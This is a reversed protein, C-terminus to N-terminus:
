NLEIVAFVLNYIHCCDKIIFSSVVVVVVFILPGVSFVYPNDITTDIVNVHYYLINSFYM